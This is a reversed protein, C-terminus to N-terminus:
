LIVGWFLFIDGSVFFVLFGGNDMKFKLFHGPPVKYIGEFFTEEGVSQIKYPLSIKNIIKNLNYDPLKKLYKLIAKIESAFLISNNETKYFYLPKVGLRDRLLTLENKKFDFIAIAFQGNFENFADEQWAKYAYPIIESDSQSKFKYGLNILKSRIDKYNFIEGNFVTIINESADMMPQLGLNSTDLIALRATGMSLKVNDLVYSNRNSIYFNRKNEESISIWSTSDPGRPELSSLMKEISSTKLVEKKLNIIGAIGCM